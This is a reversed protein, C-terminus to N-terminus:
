IVNSTTWTMWAHAIPLVYVHNYCKHISWTCTGHSTSETAKTTDLRGPEDESEKSSSCVDREASAGRKTKVAKKSRGKGKMEQIRRELNSRWNVRM